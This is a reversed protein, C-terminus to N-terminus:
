HAGSINLAMVGVIILIISAVKVLNVSEKFIVIGIISIIVTGLGSWIAYAISIDIKKLSITLLGLSVTYFIVMFLSAYLNKFGNSLKMCTTALVELGIAFFLLMWYM